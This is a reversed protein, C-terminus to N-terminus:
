ASRNRKPPRAFASVTAGGEKGGAKPAADGQKSDNTGSEPDIGAAARLSRLEHQLRVTPTGGIEHLARMLAHSLSAIRNTATADLELQHDLQEALMTAVATAAKDSPKLWKMAKLAEDVVDRMTPKPSTDSSDENADRAAAAAAIAEEKERRKRERYNRAREASTLPRKKEDPM